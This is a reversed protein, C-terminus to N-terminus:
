YRATPGRDLTKYVIAPLAGAQDSRTLVNGWFDRDVDADNQFLRQATPSVTAPIVPPAACDLSGLRPAPSLINQAAEDATMRVNGTQWPQAPKQEAVVLNAVVSYGDKPTGFGGM